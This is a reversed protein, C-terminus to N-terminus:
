LEWALDAVQTSRSHTIAAAQRSSIGNFTTVTGEVISVSSVGFMEAM